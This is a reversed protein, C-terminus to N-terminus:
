RNRASRRLPPPAAAPADVHVVGRRATGRRLGKSVRGGHGAADRRAKHKAAILAMSGGPGGLHGRASRKSPMAEPNKADKKARWKQLHKNWGIQTM